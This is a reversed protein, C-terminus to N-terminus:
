NLLKYRRSCNERCQPNFILNVESERNYYYVEKESGTTSYLEVHNGDVIRYRNFGRIGLPSNPNSVKFEGSSTFTVQEAETAPMWAGTGDGRDQWYEVLQWTGVLSNKETNTPDNTAKTTITEDSINSKECGAAIALTFALLLTWKM